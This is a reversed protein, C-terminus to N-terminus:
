VAPTHHPSSDRAKVKCSTTAVVQPSLARQAWLDASTHGGHCVANGELRRTRLGWPGEGGEPPHNQILSPQFKWGLQSSHLRGMKRGESAKSGEMLLRPLQPESLTPSNNRDAWSPLTLDGPRLFSPLTPLGPRLDSPFPNPLHGHWAAGGMGRLTPPSRPQRSLRWHTDRPHGAEAPAPQM